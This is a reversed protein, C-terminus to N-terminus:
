TNIFNYSIQIMVAKIVKLSLDPRPPKVELVDQATQLYERLMAEQIARWEQRPDELQTTQNVHNIYYAGVHKDCAEEWGLPLENGICDAFTQPKTFTTFIKSLYGISVNFRYSMNALLLGSHLRILTLFLQNKLSVKTQTRSSERNTKPETTLWKRLSEAAPPGLFEWLTDFDEPKLGTYYKFKKVNNRCSDVDFAESELKKELCEICKKLQKVETDEETQSNADCTSVTQMPPEVVREANNPTLFNNYNEPESSLDINLQIEQHSNANKNDTQGTILEDDTATFCTLKQRKNKGTSSNEDVCRQQRKRDKPIKSVTAPLPNPNEATPGNSNIFHKTCIYTHKKIKEVTLDAKRSLHIWELCKKKDIQPKIFPVFRVGDQKYRSDRPDIWTTKRTNHDIFYVKGDFDQAVDWGEPLPIEGNRRRPM